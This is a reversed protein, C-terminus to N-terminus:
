TLPIATPGKWPASRPLAPADRPGNQIRTQYVTCIRLHNLSRLDEM